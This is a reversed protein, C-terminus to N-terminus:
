NIGGVLTATLGIDTAGGSFTACTLDITDGQAIAVATQVPITVHGLDGLGALRAASSDLIGNPNSALVLRCSADQTDSDANIVTAKGNIVYNGAPLGPLTAVITQAFGSLLVGFNGTDVLIQNTSYAHSPGPAGQPGQAGQPGTPGQPGQGGQPGQPGQPGTPGQPGQPGTPGVLGAAAPDIQITGNKCQNSAFVSGSPNVCLVLAEGYSSIMGVLLLVMVTSLVKRVM